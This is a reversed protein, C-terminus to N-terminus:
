IFIGVLIVVLELNQIPAPNESSSVGYKSISQFYLSLLNNRFAEDFQLSCTNQTAAQNPAPQM